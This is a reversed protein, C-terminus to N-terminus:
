KVLNSKTLFIKRLFSPKEMFRIYVKIYVKIYGKSIIINFKTPM